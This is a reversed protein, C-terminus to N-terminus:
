SKFFPQRLFKLFIRTPSFDSTCHNRRCSFQAEVLRALIAGGEEQGSMAARVRWVLLGGFSGADEQANLDLAGLAVIVGAILPLAHLKVFQRPVEDPQPFPRKAGRTDLANLQDGGGLALVFHGAFLIRLFPQDRMRLKEIAM